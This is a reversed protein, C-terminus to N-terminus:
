VILQGPVFAQMRIALGKRVLLHEAQECVNKFAFVKQVSRSAIFAIEKCSSESFFFM